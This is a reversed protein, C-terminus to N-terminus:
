IRELINVTDSIAVYKDGTVLEWLIEYYYKGAPITQTDEDELYFVAKGQAGSILSDAAKAFITEGGKKNKFIIRVMDNSINPAVGDYIITVDFKKTTGQYFDKLIM